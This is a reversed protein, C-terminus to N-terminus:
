GTRLRGVTQIRSGENCFRIDQSLAILLATKYHNTGYAKQSDDAQVLLEERVLSAGGRRFPRECSLIVENLVYGAEKQFRGGLDLMQFQDSLRNFLEADMSEPQVLSYEVHLQPVWITTAVVMRLDPVEDLYAHVFRSPSHTGKSNNCTFCSAILNRALISFEPHTSRPLFHDLTSTQEFNCIPCRFNSAEHLEAALDQLARGDSLSDYNSQLLNSHSPDDLQMPMLALVQSIAGSYAAYAQEVAPTYDQLVSRVALARRAIATQYDSADNRAPPNVNRMVKTM